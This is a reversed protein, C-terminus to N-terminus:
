DRGANVIRSHVELAAALVHGSSSYLDDDQQWAMEATQLLSGLGAHVCLCATRHPYWQHACCWWHSAALMCGSSRVSVSYLLM